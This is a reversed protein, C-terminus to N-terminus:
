APDPADLRYVFGPGGLYMGGDVNICRGGAYVRATTVQEPRLGAWVPIPSHGHVIRRGGFRELMAAARAWGQPDMDEFMRHEFFRDLFAIWAPLDDGALLDGLTRNVAAIDPGYDLYLTSDAHVILADGCRALAPLGALWAIHRDALRALDDPQGGNARWNDAFGGGPGLAPRNGFRRVALILVDHNGLLAGIRGGAAAAEEQLRMVREIVGIGDPGRDVFDGVFWLVAGAAIWRNRDDVLGAGRLLRRLKGDHGHVDGIVYTPAAVGPSSM